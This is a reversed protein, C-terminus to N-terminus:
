SLPIHSSNLRTSKRDAPGTHAISGTLRTLQGSLRADAGPYVVIGVDVIVHSFGSGFPSALIGVTNGAFAVAFDPPPHANTRRPAVVHQPIEALNLLRDLGVPEPEIQETRGVAVAVAREIGFICAM